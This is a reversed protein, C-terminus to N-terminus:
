RQAKLVLAVAGIKVARSIWVPVKADPAFYRWTDLAAPALILAGVWREDARIALSMGLTDRERPGTRAFAAGSYALSALINFAFLGKLLPAREHRVRPRRTLLWENGAHQVWFGASSITFERAPSLGSRHTVAFFPIGHFDVRGIGPDGDFLVAFLVHGGEHAGLAIAAGGLFALPEAQARADNRSLALLLLTLLAITFRRRRYGRRTAHANSRPDGGGRPARLLARM